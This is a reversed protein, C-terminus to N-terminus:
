LKSMVFEVAGGIWEGLKALVGPSETSQDAPVIAKDPDSARVGFAAAIASRQADTLPMKPWRIHIEIVANGSPPLGRGPIVHHQNASTGKSCDVVLPQGDIGVMAHRFGVLADALDVSLAHWLDHGRREFVPHTVQEFRIHVDGPQQGPLQHGRGQAILIRDLHDVTIPVDIHDTVEFVAREGVSARKFTVSKSGRHYLDELTVRVVVRVPPPGFADAFFAQFPFRGFSRMSMGRAPAAARRREADYAARKDPDSLTAYADSISKFLAESRAREAPTSATHKDPHHQRALRRYAAKIDAPSASAPVHLADYLTSM